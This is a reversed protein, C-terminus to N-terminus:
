DENEEECAVNSYGSRFRHVLQAEPEFSHRWICGADSGLLHISISANESVTKVMHIDGDPPMLTYFDGPRLRRTEAVQLVAREENQANDTRRYVVEDQEGRYLGVLGWALHDHVPTASSPPVVLSFLTLSHDAARFLLWQGIGGGMGSAPNDRAFEDPLWNQDALLRSFTPSLAQLGSIPDGAHGNLGERVEAVFARLAVGPAFYEDAGGATPNDQSTM